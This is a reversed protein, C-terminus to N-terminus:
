NKNSEADEFRVSSLSVDGTIAAEISSLKPLVFPLITSLKDISRLQRDRNGSALEDKVFSLVSDVLIYAEERRDALLLTSKNKTGKKKGKVNGSQGKKFAM